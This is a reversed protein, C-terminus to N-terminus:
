GGLVVGRQKAVKEMMVQFYPFPFRPNYSRARYALALVVDDKLEGESVAKIVKSLFIREQEMRVLLLYELQEGLKILKPPIEPDQAALPAHSGAVLCCVAALLLWRLPKM